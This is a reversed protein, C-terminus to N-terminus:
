WEPVTLPAVSQELIIMSRPGVASIMRAGGGVWV